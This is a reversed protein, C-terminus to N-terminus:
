TGAAGKLIPRMCLEPLPILPEAKGYLREAGEHNFLVEVSTRNAMLLM